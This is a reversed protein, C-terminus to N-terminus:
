QLDFYSNECMNCGSEVDAQNKVEKGRTVIKFGDRAEDTKVESVCMRSRRTKIGVSFTHIVSGM